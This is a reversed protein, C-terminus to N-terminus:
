SPLFIEDYLVKDALSSIINSFFRQLITRVTPSLEKHVERWNDNLVENMREGLAKDGNFLNTLLFNENTPEYHLATETVKMYEKGNRNELTFLLDGKTIVDYMNISIDGEGKIPLLLLRGNISYKGEVKLHPIKVEVHIKQKKLDVNVKEIIGKTLGHIKANKLGLNLGNRESIKIESVELPDLPRLGYSREGNALRPLTDKAAQLACQNINPDNRRCATIYSPLPLTNAARSVNVLLFIVLLTVPGM